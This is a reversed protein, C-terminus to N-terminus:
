LKIKFTSKSNHKEITGSMYDISSFCVNEAMYDHHLIHENDLKKLWQEEM